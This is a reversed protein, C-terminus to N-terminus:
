PVSMRARLCDQVQNVVEPYDSFVLGLDVTGVVDVIGIAAIGYGEKNRIPAVVVPIGTYRGNTPITRIIQNEKLVQELVPGTYNDDLIKGKEIRVGKKNLSRMTVPLGLLEHVAMAFPAVERADSDASIQIKTYDMNM